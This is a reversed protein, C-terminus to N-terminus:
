GSNILSLVGSFLFFIFFFSLNRVEEVPDQTPLPMHKHSRFSPTKDGLLRGVKDGVSDVWALPNGLLGM